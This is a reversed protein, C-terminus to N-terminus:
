DKAFFFHNCLWLSGVFGFPPGAFLRGLTHYELLFRPHSSGFICQFPRLKELTPIDYGSTSKKLALTRSEWQCVMVMAKVLQSEYGEKREVQKKCRQIM